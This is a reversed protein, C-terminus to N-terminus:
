SYFDQILDNHQVAEVSVASGVRSYVFYTTGRDTYSGDYELSTVLAGLDSTIRVSSSSSFDLVKDSGFGIIGDNNGDAIKITTVLVDGSSFQSIIDHGKESGSYYFLDLGSGGRMADNGVGGEFVTEGGGSRLVDNGGYGAVLSSGNSGEITNALNNGFVEAYEGSMKIFEVSSDTGLVFFSEAYVRDYGEGAKERVSSDGGTLVYTDDGSGGSLSDVDYEFGANGGDYLTDNGRGGILIDGSGTGHIVFDGPGSARVRPTTHDYEGNEDPFLSALSQVSRGVIDEYAFGTSTGQSVDVTYGDRVFVLKNSLADYQTKSISAPVPIQHAWDLGSTTLKVDLYYIMKGGGSFAWIRALEPAMPVTGIMNDPYISHLTALSRTM